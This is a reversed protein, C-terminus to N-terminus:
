TCLAYAFVLLSHYPVNFALFLQTRVAAFHCCIEIHVKFVRNRCFGVVSFKIFGVDM